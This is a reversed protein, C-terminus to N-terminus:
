LSSWWSNLSKQHFKWSKQILPAILIFESFIFCISHILWLSLNSWSSEPHLKPIVMTRPVFQTCLVFSIYFLLLSLTHWTAAGSQALEAASHWTGVEWQDVDALPGWGPVLWQCTPGVVTGRPLSHCPWRVRGTGCPTMGCFWRLLGQWM